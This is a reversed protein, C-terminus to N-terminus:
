QIEERIDDFDRIHTHVAERKPKGFQHIELSDVQDTRQRAIDQRVNVSTRVVWWDINETTIVHEISLIEIGEAAFEGFPIRM